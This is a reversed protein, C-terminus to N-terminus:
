TEMGMSFPCTELAQCVMLDQCLFCFGIEKSMVWMHSLCLRPLLPVGRLQDAPLETRDGNIDWCRCPSSGATNIKARVHPKYGERRTVPSKYAAKVQEYSLTKKLLRESNASIYQVAWEEFRAFEANQEASLSFEITRPTAFEDGFSTAGFPSYVPQDKSGLNFQFRSGDDKATVKGSRAGKANTQPDQIQWDCTLKDM